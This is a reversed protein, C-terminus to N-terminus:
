KKIVVNFQVIENMFIFLIEMHIVLFKFKLINQNILINKLMYKMMVLLQKQKQNQVIMAESVESADNVIRMGRGGGGLSAKIIIPIAM